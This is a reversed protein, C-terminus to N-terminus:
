FKLNMSDYFEDKIGTKHIKIQQLADPTAGIVGPRPPTHDGSSIIIKQGPDSSNISHQKKEFELRPETNRSFDM